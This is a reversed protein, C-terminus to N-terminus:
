RLGAAARLQYIPDSRDRRQGAWDPKLPPVEGIALRTAEFVVIWPRDELSWRAARGSGCLSWIAVAACLRWWFAISDNPKRVLPTLQSSIPRLLLSTMGAFEILCEGLFHM